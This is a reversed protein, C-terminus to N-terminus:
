FINSVSSYFGVHLTVGAESIRMIEMDINCINTLWFTYFHDRSVYHEHCIENFTM